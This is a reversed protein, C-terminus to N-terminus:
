PILVTPPQFHGRLFDYGAEERCDGYFTLTLRRLSSRHLGPLCSPQPPGGPLDARDLGTRMSEKRQMGGSPASRIRALGGGPPASRMRALGRWVSREEDQRAGMRATMKAKKWLFTRYALYFLIVTTAVVPGM